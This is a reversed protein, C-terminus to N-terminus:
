KKNKTSETYNLESRSTKNETLSAKDARVTFADGAGIRRQIKTSADSYEISDKVTYTSEDDEKTAVMLKFSSVKASEDALKGLHAYLAKIDDKHTAIGDVYYPYVDFDTYTVQKASDNGGANVTTINGLVGYRVEFADKGVAVPGETAKKPTFGGITIFYRESGDFM